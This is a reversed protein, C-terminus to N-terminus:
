ALTSSCVLRPFKNNKVAKQGYKRWRYGDDLIDVQSRTQFAFRPMRAKKKKERKMETEDVGGVNESNNNNSVDKTEAATPYGVVKTAGRINLENNNDDYPDRTLDRLRSGASGLKNGEDSSALAPAPTFGPSGLFLAAAQNKM